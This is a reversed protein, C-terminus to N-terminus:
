YSNLQAYLQKDQPQGSPRKGRPRQAALYQWANCLHDSRKLPKDKSLGKQNGKSFSDWIYHEIEWRFNKLDRFVFVKPHRSTSELTAAIYERSENLGYDEGVEALRCPIGNERYLTIGSKHTENNRQTGWKPDLLWMDISDGANRALINKAHDSVVLNATYYERYLYINNTGPEIAAWLAATTGTAAPDISVIRRWDKSIRFPDVLHVKPNWLNYVLGSRQIFDGYLRAKEEPHGSWKELLRTKEEQPVYPNDLVSLKVFQIDKSGKIMDDYLDYVWPEKVGSAIDILPTLTLLLKGACDATRQFCEDYVRGECEEDIWVLDVSAGQFKEWGSDASKGTLISGNQFFVQFDGDVVKKIIAPDQPLLPPVGRGHVLKEHWIVNKLVGYDLGVVWVNNPPPPIPLDKVLEYAPEGKFFDKGLCWAVAFFAGESTKGSRNGGLVGFVKIEPTFKKFHELQQPQPDFYCVYRTKKRKDEIADLIALQQIPDGMRALLEIPDSLFHIEITTHLCVVPLGHV